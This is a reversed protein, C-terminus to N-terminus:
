KGQQLAIAGVFSVGPQETKAKKRPNAKCLHHEEGSLVAIGVAAIWFDARPHLLLFLLRQVQWLYFPLVRPATGASHVPAPLSVWLYEDVYVYPGYVPSTGSVKHSGIQRVFMFSSGSLFGHDQKRNTMNHM